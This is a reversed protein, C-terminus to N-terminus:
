CCRRPRRTIPTGTRSGRSSYSRRACAACFRWSPRLRRSAGPELGADPLGLNERLRLGMVEAAAAAERARQEPTGHTAREGRTLDLVGTSHGLEAARILTGGCFLEVDDPHPGVALLDLGFDSM